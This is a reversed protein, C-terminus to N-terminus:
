DYNPVDLLESLFIQLLWSLMNASKWTRPQIRVEPYQINAVRCIGMKEADVPDDSNCVRLLQNAKDGNKSYLCGQHFPNSVLCLGDKSSGCDMLASTGKMSYYFYFLLFILRANSPSTSTATCKSAYSESDILLYQKIM